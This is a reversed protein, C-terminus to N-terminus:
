SELYQQDTHKDTPRDSQENTKDSNQQANKVPMKKGGPEPREAAQEREKSANTLIMWEKGALWKNKLSDLYEDLNEFKEQKWKDWNLWGEGEFHMNEKEKLWKRIVTIELENRTIWKIWEGKEKRQFYKAWKRREWQEWKEDEHVKWEQSVWETMKRSKWKNWQTRLWHYYLKEYSDILDIWTQKNYPKWNTDLWHSWQEESELDKLRIIGENIEELTYINWSIWREKIKNLINEFVVNKELIWQNNDSTLSVKWANYEKDLNNKWNQFQQIKWEESYHEERKSKELEDEGEGEKEEGESPQIKSPLLKKKMTYMQSHIKATLFSLTHDMFNQFHSRPAPEVKDIDPTGKEKAREALTKKKTQETSENNPLKPIGKFIVMTEKKTAGNPSKGAAVSASNKMITNPSKESQFTSSRKKMLNFLMGTTVNPRTKSGINGQSPTIIKSFKFKTQRPFKLKPFKLKPFKGFKHKIKHTFKEIEFNSPSDGQFNSFTHDDIKAFNDNTINPNYEGGEHSVIHDTINSNNANEINASNTNVIQYLINITQDYNKDKLSNACTENKKIDEFHIYSSDHYRRLERKKLPNMKIICTIGYYLLICMSIYMYYLLSNPNSQRYIRLNKSFPSSYPAFEEKKIFDDNKRIPPWNEELRAFHPNEYVVWSCLFPFILLPLCPPLM